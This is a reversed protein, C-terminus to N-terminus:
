DTVDLLHNIILINQTSITKKMMKTTKMAQIPLETTSTDM